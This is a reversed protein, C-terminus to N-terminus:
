VCSFQPTFAVKKGNVKENKANDGHVHNSDYAYVSEQKKVKMKPLHYGVLLRADMLFIRTHRREILMTMHAYIAHM